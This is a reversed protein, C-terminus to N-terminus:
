AGRRRGFWRTRRPTAEAAEGMSQLAARVVPDQPMLRAAERFHRLEKDHGGGGLARRGLEVHARGRASPDAEELLVDVPSRQVSM